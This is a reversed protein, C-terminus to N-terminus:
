PNKLIRWIFFSSLSFFIFLCTCSSPRMRDRNAVLAERRSFANITKWCRLLRGLNLAQWQQWLAPPEFSWPAPAFPSSWDVTAYLYGNKAGWVQVHLESQYLSYIYFQLLLTIYLLTFYISTDWIHEYYEKMLNSVCYNHCVWKRGLDLGRRYNQTLPERTERVSIWLTKGRLGIGNSKRFLPDPCFKQHQFLPFQVFYDSWSKQLVLKLTYPTGGSSQRWRSHSETHTQISPLIGHLAVIGWGVARIELFTDTQLNPPLLRHRSLAFM